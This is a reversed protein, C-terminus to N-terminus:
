FKDPDKFNRSGSNQGSRSSFLGSKLVVLSIISINSIIGINKIISIVSISSNISSSIIRAISSPLKHPQCHGPRTTTGLYVRLKARYNRHKASKSTEPELWTGKKTKQYLLKVTSSVM